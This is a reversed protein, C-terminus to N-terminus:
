VQPYNGGPSGGGRPAPPEEKHTLTYITVIVLIIPLAWPVFGVLAIQLDPYGGTVMTGTTPNVWSDTFYKVIPFFIGGILWWWIVREIRQGLM